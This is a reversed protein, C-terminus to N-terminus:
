LPQGNEIKAAIRRAFAKTAAPVLPVVFLGILAAIAVTDTIGYRYFYSRLPEAFYYAAFGGFLVGSVWTLLLLVFGRRDPRSSSLQALLDLLGLLGAALAGAIVLKIKPADSM